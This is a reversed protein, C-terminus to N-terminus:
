KTSSSPKDTIDKTRRQAQSSSAAESEDPIADLKPPTGGVKTIMQVAFSRDSWVPFHHRWSLVPLNRLPKGLAIEQQLGMEALSGLVTAAAM